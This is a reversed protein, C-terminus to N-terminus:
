SFSLSSCTNRPTLIGSVDIRKSFEARTKEINNNLEANKQNLLKLTESASNIATILENIKGYQKGIEDGIKKQNEIIKKNVYAQREKETGLGLLHDGENM